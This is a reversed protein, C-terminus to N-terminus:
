KGERPRPSVDDAGERPQVRVKGRILHHLLTTFMAELAAKHARGGGLDQPIGLAELENRHTALLRGREDWEM